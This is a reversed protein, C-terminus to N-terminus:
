IGHNRLIKSTLDVSHYEFTLSVSLDQLEHMM